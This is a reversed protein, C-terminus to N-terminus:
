LKVAFSILRTARFVQIKCTTKSQQARLLKFALLDCAQLQKLCNIPVSDQRGQRHLTAVSHAPKFALPTKTLTQHSPRPSHSRM